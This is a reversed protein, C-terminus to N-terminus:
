RKARGVSGIDDPEELDADLDLDMGLDPGEEPEAIGTDLGQDIQDSEGGTDAFADVGQGTVIGLAGELSAKSSQLATNIAELAENAKTNFEKSENAGIDSQISSVLAPLEKVMMDNIDELMKQVTDIMDQAALIVQSKAVEENEVVIRAPRVNLLGRYHNSLAQEMFVLKMYSPSTQNKYFGPSQKAERILSTVKTLMTKTKIKNLSSVNFSVDFSETLARSAYNKNELDTLKM